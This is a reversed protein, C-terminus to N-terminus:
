KKKMIKLNISMKSRHIVDPKRPSLSHDEWCDHVKCGYFQDSLDNQDFPIVFM